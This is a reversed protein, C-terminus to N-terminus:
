PSKQQAPPHESGPNSQLEAPLIDSSPTKMKTLVKGSIAQKVSNSISNVLDAATNADYYNGGSAKAICGLQAKAEHDRKLGLGVIDVKIKIGLQALRDIYACPDGGCTEAGDSILIITKPGNCYRLDHEAQTLAYTLPTLGHARLTRVKEIVSRRNNKGIPVLLASQQCDAYPDNSFGQGFVRLGVNIDSPLNAIATQLVRKAADMREEKGGDGTPIKEIMSHSADVLFLINVSGGAREVGAQLLTNQTGVQLTTSDTGVQLTTNQTGVQLTTSDTGTRLTTSDTGGTLTRSDAPILQQVPDYGGPLAQAQKNKHCGACPKAEASPPSGTLLSAICTLASILVAILLASSPRCKKNHMESRKRGATM